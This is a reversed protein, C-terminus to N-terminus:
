VGAPERAPESPPPAQQAEARRAQEPILRFVAWATLAIVGFGGVILLWTLLPTRSEQWDDGTPVAIIVFAAAAVFYAAGWVRRHWDHIAKGDLYTFPLLGVVLAALTELVIGALTEEVLIVAAGPEGTFFSELLGLLLWSVLGLAFATAVGLLALRGENRRSMARGYQVTVVAGFLLAPQIHLVESIVVSVAVVALAGPMPMIRGPTRLRRRAAVLRGANLGLNLATLSLFLSAFSIAAEAGLRWGTQGFGLILTAAVVTIGSLLWPKRLARPLLHHRARRARRASWGFARGYNETLTSQLLEAPIAALLLFASALTATAAVKLPTFHLDGLTPVTPSLWQYGGEVTVAAKATSPAYGEATLTAVVHHDGAEAATPVEVTMELAGDADVDGEGMRLPSSHLEVAIHGGAPLGDAAIRIRDGPRLVRGDLAMGDEGALDFSWVLTAAVPAVAEAVPAPAAEPAARKRKKTKKEAPVAAPTWWLVPAATWEPADPAPTARPPAPEPAPPAPSPAVYGGPERQSEVAPTASAATATLLVLMLGMTVVALLVARLARERLLARWAPAAM